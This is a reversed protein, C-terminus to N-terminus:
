GSPQGSDGCPLTEVKKSGPLPVTLYRQGVVFGDHLRCRRGLGDLVFYHEGLRDAACQKHHQVPESRGFSRPTSATTSSVTTKPRHAAAASRTSMSPLTPTTTAGQPRNSSAKMRVKLSPLDARIVDDGARRSAVL